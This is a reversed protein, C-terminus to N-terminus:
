WPLLDVNPNRKLAGPHDGIEIAPTANPTIGHLAEAIGWPTDTSGLM